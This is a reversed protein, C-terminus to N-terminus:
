VEQAEEITLEGVIMELDDIKTQLAEIADMLDRRELEYGRAQDRVMREADDGMHLRIYRLLDEWEYSNCRGYNDEPMGPRDLVSGLIELCGAIYIKKM